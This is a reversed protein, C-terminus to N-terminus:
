SEQKRRRRMTVNAGLFGLGLLLLTGSLMAVSAAMDLNQGTYALAAPITESTAELIGSPSVQFYNTEVWPTGDAATGEIILRHWGGELNAPIRVTTSLRGSWITGQDIIQPTSRVTVTYGTGVKLGDAELAVPANAIPQGVPIQIAVSATPVSPVPRWEAYLTTNASFSFDAGDAYPTGSRNAATNWGDFYYGNRTIGNNHTLAMSSASSQAALSGTGGNANFTVTRSTATWHAYLTIGTSVGPAYGDALAPGGSTATFWGDFSYGARTPAAALHAISSGTMFSGDSVSSGGQSDYTVVNPLVPPISVYLLSSQNTAALTTSSTYNLGTTTWTSVTAQSVRHDSTDLTWLNGNSDFAFSNIAIHHVEEGITTVAGQLDVSGLYGPNDFTIYIKGDAPNFSMGRLGPGGQPDLDSPTAAALVGLETAAGSALNVSYLVWQFAHAGSSPFAIAYGVGRDSVAFKLDYTGVGLGLHGVFTSNGTIPSMSYVDTQSSGYDLWYAQSNVPNYSLASAWKGTAGTGAIRTGASATSPNIVQLAVDGSQDIAYISQGSPLPNTTALAPGGLSLGTIALGLAVVFGLVKKSVSTKKVIKGRANIATCTPV